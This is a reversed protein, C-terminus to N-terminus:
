LAVQREAPNGVSVAATQNSIVTDTFLTSDPVLEFQSLQLFHVLVPEKAAIVDRGDCWIGFLGSVHALV